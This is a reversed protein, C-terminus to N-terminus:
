YFNRRVELLEVTVDFESSLFKDKNQKYYAVFQDCKNKFEELEHRMIDTVAEKMPELVFKKYLYKDYVRDWLNKVGIFAKYDEEAVQFVVTNNKSNFNSFKPSNRVKLDQMRLEHYHEEIKYFTISVDTAIKEIENISTLVDTLIQENTVELSM